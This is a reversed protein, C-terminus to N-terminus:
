PKAAEMKALVETYERLRRRTDAEQQAMQELQESHEQEARERHLLLRELYAQLDGKSQRMVEIPSGIDETRVVRM